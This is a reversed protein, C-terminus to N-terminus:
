LFNGESFTGESIVFPFLSAECRPLKVSAVEILPEFHVGGTMPSILMM